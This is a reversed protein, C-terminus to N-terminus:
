FSTELASEQPVKLQIFHLLDKMQQEQITAQLFRWFNQVARIKAKEGPSHANLITPGFAVVDLKPMLKLFVGCELGAHIAVVELEEGAQEKHIVQM